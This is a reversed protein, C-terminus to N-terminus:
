QRHKTLKSHPWLYCFMAQLRFFVYFGKRLDRGGLSSALPVVSEIWISSFTEPCNSIKWSCLSWVYRPLFLPYWMGREKLIFCSQIRVQTLRNKPVGLSDDERDVWGGFLTAIRAGALFEKDRLKNLQWATFRYSSPNLLLMVHLQFRHHLVSSLCSCCDIRWFTLSGFESGWM